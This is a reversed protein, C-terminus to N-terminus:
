LGFLAFRALEIPRAPDPLPRYMTYATSSLKAAFHKDVFRRQGTVLDFVDYRRGTFSRSLAPLLAVPEGTDATFGLLPGFQGKWWGDPLVVKRIRVGSAEAIAQIPDRGHLDVHIDRIDMGQARGVARLALVLPNSSSGLRAREDNSSLSTLDRVTSRAMEADHRQREGFREDHRM